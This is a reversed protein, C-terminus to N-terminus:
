KKKGKVRRIPVYVDNVSMPEDIYNSMRAFYRYLGRRCLKRNLNRFLDEGKKTLSLKDGRARVYGNGKLSDISYSLLHLTFGHNLLYMTNGDVRIIQLLLLKIEDDNM